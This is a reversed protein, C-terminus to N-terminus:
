EGGHDGSGAEREPRENGAATRTLGHKDEAAKASSSGDTDTRANATGAGAAETGAGDKDTRYTRYTENNAAEAETGSGTRPFYRGLSRATGDQCEVREFIRRFRILDKPDVDHINRCDPLDARMTYVELRYQGNVSELIENVERATPLVDCYIIDPRLNAGEGDWSSILDLLMRCREVAAKYRAPSYRYEGDETLMQDPEILIAGTEAALQRALTSKGSGPLGRFITVKM